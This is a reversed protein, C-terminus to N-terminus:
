FLGSLALSDLLHTKLFRHSTISIWILNFLEHVDGDGIETLGVKYLNINVLNLFTECITSPENYSIAERIIAILNTADSNAFENLHVGGIGTFNNSGNPNNITLDREYENYYLTYSCSLFSPEAVAVLLLVIACIKM